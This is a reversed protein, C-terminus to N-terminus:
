CFRVNDIRINVTLLKNSIKYQWFITTFNYVEKNKEEDAKVAQVYFTNLFKSNIVYRTGMCDMCKYTYVITCKLMIKIIYMSIHTHTRKIKIQFIESLIM